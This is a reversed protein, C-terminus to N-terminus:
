HSATKAPPEYCIHAELNVKKLNTQNAVPRAPKLVNLIM